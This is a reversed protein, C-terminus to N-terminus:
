IRPLDKEDAFFELDSWFRDDFYTDAMDSALSRLEGHTILRTEFGAEALDDMSLSAIPVASREAVVIAAKGANYGQLYSDKLAAKISWVVCDHFDLADSGREELNDIDLHQLAIQTLAEIPILPRNDSNPQNFDTM